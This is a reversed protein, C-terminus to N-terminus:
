HILSFLLRLASVLSKQNIYDLKSPLNSMFYETMHYESLLFPFHTENWNHVTKLSQTFQGNKGILSFIYQNKELINTM